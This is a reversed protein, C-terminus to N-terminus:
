LLTAGAASPIQNGANGNPLTVTNLPLGNNTLDDNNVLRRGTPKGNADTQIPLLHFVDARFMTMTYTAGSGGGSSWCPANAPTLALPSAKVVTIPLGRFKAGDVQAVDTTIMEWYVYAAVIEADAPVGSMPITGTVVGGAGTKPDLDVSGVAYSGTILFGKSFPLEDAAQARGTIGAFALMLLLVTAAWVINRRARACVRVGLERAM